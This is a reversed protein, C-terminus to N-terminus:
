AWRGSAALVVAAAAVAATATRLVSEGMRVPLGGAAAFAALEPDSIGGEPGVVLVVDGDAPLTLRSLRAAASEHLVLGLRADALLQAVRQQNALSAVVPLRSRRSQKTAARAVAQLREVGRSAKDGSWIAVSREAAWPVIEDVGCETLMAVAADSRDGKALGHVVVIRPAPAPEDVVSDLAVAFRDRDVLTVAGGARRGQGDVLEVREGERLRRARTGHHGEAGDVTVSSGPRAGELGPAAVIFVPDTM